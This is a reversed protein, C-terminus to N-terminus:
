GEGSGARPSAAEEAGAELFSALRKSRTKSIENRLTGRHVWGRGLIRGEHRFAVFGDGLDPRERPERDLLRFLEPRELTVVNREVLGDLRRLLDSTPREGAPTRPDRKVARLGLSLVRWDASGDWSPVPWADCRHMWVSKGRVIWGNRALEEDPIGFRHALGERARDIREEARERRDRDDAEREGDDDPFVRPVPHWGDPRGEGAPVGAEGDDAEAAASASGTGDGESGDTRRLRALFLGGSDLHHPYIRAAGRLRSDFGEGEFSTLGPAHPVELALPEVTVPADRLVRDVVAENEEPAFTCTVYLVSGGPRVVEVARRLLAEQLGTVYRTFSADREQIEGGRDRVNGEASCPADVLVRDFAAGGPFSRGDAQVALVSAYGTRYLNGLLARLRRDDVDAAVLTGRDDMREALHATKGGPAACLDLVREGPRPDLAPAAVGTAAQQIYFLGLWHELTKSVPYPARVVRYFGDTGDVRALEFGKERLREALHAPEIRGRRVRFTTPEPREVADLFGSWDPVIERYRELAM